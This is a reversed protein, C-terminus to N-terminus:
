QVRVRGNFRQVLPAQKVGVEIVHADKVAVCATHLIKIARAMLM